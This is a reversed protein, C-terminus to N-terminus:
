AIASAPIADEGNIFNESETVRIGAIRLSGDGGVTILANNSNTNSYKSIVMDAVAPSMFIHKREINQGKIKRAFQILQLYTPFHDEDINVIAAEKRENAQQFGLMASVDWAYGSAGNSLDGLGGNWKAQIRFFTSQGQEGDGAGQAGGQPNMRNPNYLGCNNGEDYACGLISYFGNGTAANNMNTTRGANELCSALLIDYLYSQEINAMGAQLAIPLKRAMWQAVWQPTAAEIRDLPLELKGAIKFLKTEKLDSLVSLLQLPADLDVRKPGVTERAKEYKNVINHSAPMFVIDNGVIPADETITNVFANQKPEHALIVERMGNKPGTIEAM